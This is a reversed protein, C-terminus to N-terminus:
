VIEIVLSKIHNEFEKQLNKFNKIKRKLLATWKYSFYPKGKKLKGKERTPEGLLSCFIESASLKEDSYFKRVEKQINWPIGYSVFNSVGAWEKTQKAFPFYWINCGLSKVKSLKGKQGEAVIFITLKESLKTEGAKQILKICERVTKPDKESLEDDVLLVTEIDKVNKIQNKVDPVLVSNDFPIRKGKVDRLYVPIKIIPPIKIKLQNYVLETIKAMMLGSNGPALILDFDNKQALVKIKSIFKKTRRQAEDILDPRKWPDKYKRAM